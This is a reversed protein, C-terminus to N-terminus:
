DNDQIIGKANIQIPTHRLREKIIKIGQRMLFNMVINQSGRTHKNIFNIVDSHVKTNYPVNPIGDIERKPAILQHATTLNNNLKIQEALQKKLSAILDSEVNENTLKSIMPDLIEAKEGTNNTKSADIMKQRVTSNSTKKDKM